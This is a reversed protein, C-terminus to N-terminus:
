KGCQAGIVKRFDVDIREELAGPVDKFCGLIRQYDPDETTAFDGRALPIALFPNKEPNEL